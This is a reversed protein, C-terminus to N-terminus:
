CSKLREQIEDMAAKQMERKNDLDALPGMLDFDYRPIIHIHFHPIAAPATTINFNDCELAKIAKGAMNRAVEFFHALENQPVKFIDEYHTKPLLLMHGETVPFADLVVSCLEDSYIDWGNEKGSAIDCFICAM